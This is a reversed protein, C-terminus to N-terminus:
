PKRANSKCRTRIKKLAAYASDRNDHKMRAIKKMGKHINEETALQPDYSKQALLNAMSLLYFFLSFSMILSRKLKSAFPKSFFLIM